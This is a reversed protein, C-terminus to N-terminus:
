VIIVDSVFLITTTPVPSLAYTIILIQKMLTSYKQTTRKWIFDNPEDRKREVDCPMSNGVHLDRELKQITANPSLTIFTSQKAGATEAPVFAVSVFFV